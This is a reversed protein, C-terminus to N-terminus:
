PRPDQSPPCLLQESVTRGIGLRLEDLLDSSLDGEDHVYDWSVQPYSPAGPAAGIRPVLRTAAAPPNEAVDYFMEFHKGVGPTSTTPALPPMLSPVNLVAMEVRDNADPFLEMTRGPSNDFKEEVLKVSEGSVVIDAGAWVAVAQTYAAVSGTDDLRKFHVPTVDSGIRAISYTFLKGTNLTFRAAVISSPNAALVDTDVSCAPCLEKLDAVWSFDEREASTTPIIKPSGNVTGRADDVIELAPLEPDTSCGKQLFLDSGNLQWVAGGSAASALSEEAQLATQDPYIWEALDEDEIPCDGSCTGARAVLFPKHHDMTSEDSLEHNHPVNLLLVTTQTRDESPVFVILGSFLIRLIFEM